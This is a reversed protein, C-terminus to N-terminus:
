FKLPLQYKKKLIDFTPHRINAPFRYRTIFIVSINYYLILFRKQNM